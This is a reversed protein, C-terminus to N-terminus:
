LELELEVEAFIDLKVLEFEPVFFALDAKQSFKHQKKMWATKRRRWLM